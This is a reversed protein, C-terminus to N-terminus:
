QNHLILRYLGVLRDFETAFDFSRGAERANTALRGHLANDTLLKAIADAHAAPDEPPVLLGAEAKNIIASIEGLGTAVSPLGFRLYEFLKNPTGRSNNATNALPIYGIRSHALWRLSEVFPVQGRLEIGARKARDLLTAREAPQYESLDIEGLTVIPTAIGRQRLLEAATVMTDFGRLKSAGGTHIVYDGCMPRPAIRAHTREAETILPYNRVLAIRSEDLFKSFHAKMIPSVIVVGALRPVVVREITSYLERALGRLARPIWHSESIRDYYFEHVDYVVRRRLVAALGGVLLLEPDHIHVIGRQAVIYRLARLNRLLRRARSGGSAGLPLLKVGDSSEVSEVTTALQVDFGAAALSRCEKFFIRTDYPRHVTSVHLIRKKVSLVSSVTAEKCQFRSGTRDDAPIVARQVLKM